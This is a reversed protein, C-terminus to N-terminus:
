SGSLSPTLLIIVTKKAGVNLRSGPIKERVVDTVSNRAEEYEYGLLVVTEGLGMTVRQVNQFNDINPQQLVTEGFGAGTSFQALERISSITINSELLVRNSDLIAPLLNLSFGTNLDAVSLTPGTVAGNTSINGSTVSRLYTRSNSVTLPVPQRHVTNVVASYMNSVRGYKELSKFLAQTEGKFIGISGSTTSGANFGPGSSRLVAGNTLTRSLNAWDIGSQAETNLDVQIIEVQINVQRLFLKNVQDIYREVNKLNGISDRVTVVGLRTDLLFQGNRSILLPLTGKLAEWLDGGQEAGGGAAPPGGGAISL